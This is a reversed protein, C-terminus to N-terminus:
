KSKGEGESKPKSKPKETPAAEAILKALAGAADLTGDHPHVIRCNGDRVSAVSRGRVKIITYEGGGKKIQVSKRLEAPLKGMVMVAFDNHTHTKTDPM